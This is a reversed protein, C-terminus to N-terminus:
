PEIRLAEAIVDIELPTTPYGVLAGRENALMGTRVYHVGDNVTGRLTEVSLVESILDVEEDSATPSILAGKNTAVALSGVVGVGGITGRRMPVGLARRILELESDRFEPHVVAGYSNALVTNGLATLRVDLVEVPIGSEELAEIEDVEVISPVILRESNGALFVGILRSRYLSLEVARAGLVERVQSKFREPAGRPVFSVDGVVRSFIGLGPSGDLKAREIPM